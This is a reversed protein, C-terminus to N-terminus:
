RVYRLLMSARHTGAAEWGLCLQEDVDPLCPMGSSNWLRGIGTLFLPASSRSDYPCIQGTLKRSKLKLETACVDGPHVLEPVVFRRPQSWVSAVEM